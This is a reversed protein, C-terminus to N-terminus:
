GDSHFRKNMDADVVGRTDREHTDAMVGRIPENEVWQAERRQTERRCLFAQLRRLKEDLVRNYGGASSLGRFIADHRRYHSELQREKYLTTKRYRRAWERKYQQRAPIQNDRYQREMGKPSHIYRYQAERGKPSHRYRWQTERGLPSQQYRRRM